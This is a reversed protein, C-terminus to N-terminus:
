GVVEVLDSELLCDDCLGNNRKWEDFEISADCVRCRLEMM